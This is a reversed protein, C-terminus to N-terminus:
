LAIIDLSEAMKFEDKCKKVDSKKTLSVDCNISCIMGKAYCHWGLKGVPMSISLLVSEPDKASM